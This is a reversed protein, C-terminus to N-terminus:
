RGRQGELYHEILKKVVRRTDDNMALFEIRTDFTIPNNSLRSEVVRGLLRIPTLRSPWPIELVLCVGRKYETDTRLLFGALSSNRTQAYSLNDILGLVHYNVEIAVDSRPHKRREVSLKEPM